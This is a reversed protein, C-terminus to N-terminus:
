SGLVDLFNEAARNAIKHLNQTSVKVKGKNRRCEDFFAMAINSQWSHYYSGPKNDENLAIRLKDMAEKTTIERNKLEIAKRSLVKNDDMLSEIEAELATIKDNLDTCDQPAFKEYSDEKLDELHEEIGEFYEQADESHSVDKDDDDPVPKNQLKIVDGLVDALQQTFEERPDGSDVAPSDLWDEIKKVRDELTFLNRIKTFISM